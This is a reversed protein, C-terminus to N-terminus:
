LKLAVAKINQLINICMISNHMDVPNQNEDFIQYHCTTPSLWKTIGERRFTPHPNLYECFSQYNSKMEKKSAVNLWTSWLLLNTEDMDFTILSSIYHICKRTNRLNHFSKM